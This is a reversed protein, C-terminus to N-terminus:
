ESSIQATKIYESPSYGFEKTFCQRFYKQDSFGVLYMVEYVKYKETKLLQAAEQLRISRIYEIPSVGTLMKVKKYFLSRSMNMKESLENVNFEPKDLNSKLEKYISELLKEDPNNSDVKKPSNMNFLNRYFRKLNERSMLLSEIRLLLLEPSFPKTIYADAGIEAGEMQNALSTKATLLIIPIHSIKINNKLAKCFDVGNMEPMMIDSIILDPHKAIAVEMGERGNIAEYILYKKELYQKLFARIEEDDEIILVKKFGKIHAREPDDGEETSGKEMIVKSPEDELLLVRAPDFHEKGLPLQIRFTAGQNETSEVEIKGHHL